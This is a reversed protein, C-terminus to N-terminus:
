INREQGHDHTSLVSANNLGELRQSILHLDEVSGQSGTPSSQPNGPPPSATGNSRNHSLLIRVLPFADHTSFPISTLLYIQTKPKSTIYFVNISFQCHHKLYM